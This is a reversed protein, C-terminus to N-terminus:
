AQRAGPSRAASLSAPFHPARVPVKPAPLLQESAHMSRSVDVRRVPVSHVATALTGTWTEFSRGSREDGQYFAAYSMTEAPVFEQEAPAWQTQRYVRRWTGTNFYVQNLVYGDAYSADLPVSEAVHTHGYVIHRARRNRFDQEALAHQFYSDGPAGRLEHLWSVIRATWGITMRKSFKLAHELGDILQFPSWQDHQRVFPMQLFEDALQDWAHKIRRRLEAPVGSRELLGEIWVPILLLPRIHPLECLGATVAKPLEDALQSAAKAVFRNVLEIVIADGLSAADRTEAYNIPDYLDGHRATVRHRRLASLLEDSERPDHPFPRAPDNTLGLQEVITRRIADYGDGRLHLLWDHNGVMYHARVDVPCSDSTLGPRGSSEAPPLRIAGGTTVNRLVALSESNVQLIDDAIAEAVAVVPASPSDRWPRASTSLWRQTRMFDLIDGLLIVDIREIPEYRGDLRWSARLALEKLREVFIAFAGSNLDDGVTGDTLHLDSIIVLMAAEKDRGARATRTQPVM